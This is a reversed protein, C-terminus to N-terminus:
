YLCVVTSTHPFFLFAESFNIPPWPMKRFLTSTNAVHSPTHYCIVFLSAVELYRTLQTNITQCSTICTLTSNSLGRPTATINVTLILRLLKSLHCPSGSVASKIMRSSLFARTPNHSSKNHARFRLLVKNEYSPRLLWLSNM